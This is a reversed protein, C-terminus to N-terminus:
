RFGGDVLLTQGTIYSSADSLLFAAAAAADQPEGLRGLLTRDTLQSQEEDSYNDLMRTKIVGPARCNVRIGSPGLEQALSRSLSILGGKSAAYASECAAGYMGWISSIFLISGQKRSIFHPLLAKVTLFAGRLNVAFVEDWAQATMDHLLATHSIGANLVLADLHGLQRLALLGLAEAQPPDRLDARIPIAGTELAVQEAESEGQCYCFAVRRGEGALRKVIAAGIGRSGGTVLATIM